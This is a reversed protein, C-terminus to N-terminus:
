AAIPWQMERRYKLFKFIARTETCMVVRYNGDPKLNLGMRLLNKKLCKIEDYFAEPLLHEYAATQLELENKKIMGTKIDLLLGGGRTAGAKDLMGGYKEKESGFAAENLTAQFGTDAIFAMYAEAYGIYKPHEAELRKWDLTNCDIAECIEHVFTGRTRGANLYRQPVADYNYLGAARLVTTVSPIEEDDLWYRHEIPDFRFNV